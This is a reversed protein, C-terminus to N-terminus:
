DKFATLAKNLGDLIYEKIIDHYWVANFEKLHKLGEFDDNALANRVAEVMEAFTM